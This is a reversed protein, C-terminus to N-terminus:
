VKFTWKLIIRESIGLSELPRMEELEGILMKCINRIEETPVVCKDM